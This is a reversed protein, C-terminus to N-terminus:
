GANVSDGFVAEFLDNYSINYGLDYMKAIKDSRGEFDDRDDIPFTAYPTVVYYRVSM